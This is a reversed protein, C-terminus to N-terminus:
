RATMACAERQRRLMAEVNRVYAEIRGDERHGQLWMDLHFSAMQANSHANCLLVKRMAKKSALIDLVLADSNM